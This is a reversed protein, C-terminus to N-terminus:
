HIIRRRFTILVNREARLKEEARIMLVQLSLVPSTLRSDTIHIQILYENDDETHYKLSIFSGASWAYTICIYQRTYMYLQLVVSFSGLAM